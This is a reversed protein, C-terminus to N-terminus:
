NYMVSFIDQLPRYLINAKAPAPTIPFSSGTTSQGTGVNLAPLCQSCAVISIKRLYALTVTVFTTWLGLKFTM